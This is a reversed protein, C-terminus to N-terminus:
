KKNRKKKVVEVEVEHDEDEDHDVDVDEDHDKSEKIIIVKVNSGEAGDHEEMIKKMEVKLDDDGKIVYVNEEIEVHDEEVGEKAHWNGGEGDVVMVKVTKEKGGDAMEGDEDILIDFTEGDGKKMVVIHEGHPKEGVEMQYKMVKVHKEDTDGESVWVLSDGHFEKIETLEGDESIFVTAKSHSKGPHASTYNYSVHEMHKEDGSIIDMMKVAHKADSDNEFQYTTDKIIKGDKKVQMTVETQALLAGSFFMLSVVSLMSIAILKKM